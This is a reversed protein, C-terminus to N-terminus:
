KGPFSAKGSRIADFEQRDLRVLDTQQWDKPKATASSPVKGSAAVATLETLSPVVTAKSTV